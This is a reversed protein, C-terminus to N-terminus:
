EVTVEIEKHEIMWTKTCLGPIESYSDFLATTYMEQPKKKEWYVAFYKKVTKPPKNVVCFPSMGAEGSEPYIYLTKAGVEKVVRYWSSYDLVNMAEGVYEIEKNNGAYKIPKKWDVM